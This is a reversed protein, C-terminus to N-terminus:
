TAHVQGPAALSAGDAKAVSEDGAPASKEEATARTVRRSAMSTKRQSLGAHSSGHDYDLCFPNILRM